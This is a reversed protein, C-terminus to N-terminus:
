CELWNSSSRSSEGDLRAQSGRAAAATTARALRALAIPTGSSITAACVDQGGTELEIRADQVRLTLRMPWGTVAIAVAKGNLAALADTAARSAAINGNLARELSRLALSSLM